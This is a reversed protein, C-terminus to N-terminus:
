YPLLSVPSLLLIYYNTKLENADRLESYLSILL